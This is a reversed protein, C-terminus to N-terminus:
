AGGSDFGGKPEALDVTPSWGLQLAWELLGQEDNGTRVADMLEEYGPIGGCDEPPFVGKAAVLRRTFRGPESVVGKLVVEHEWDDGFDYTYICRSAGGEGFYSDLRVRRADPMRDMLDDMGDGERRGAIAQEVFSNRPWFGFLHSDFWGCADQIAQHLLEFSATTRLLFRRQPRPRVHRLAVSFDFFTAM